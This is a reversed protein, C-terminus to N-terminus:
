EEHKPADNKRANTPELARQAVFQDELGLRISWLENLAAEVGLIQAFIHPASRRQHEVRILIQEIHAVADTREGATVIAMLEFASVQHAAFRQVIGEALRLRATRRQQVQAPTLSFDPQSRAVDSLDLWRQYVAAAASEPTMSPTESVRSPTEAACHEYVVGLLTSLDDIRTSYQERALLHLLRDVVARRASAAWLDSSPSPLSTLTLSEILESVNATPSTIWPLVELVGNLVGPSNRNSLVVTRAARRVDAPTGRMAEEALVEADVWAITGRGLEELLAIRVPGNRGANLYKRTWDARRDIETSTHASAPSSAASTPEGIHDMEHLAETENGMWLWGAAANLRAFSTALTLQDETSTAQARDADVSLRLFVWRQLTQGVEAPELSWAQAYRDRLALRDVQPADIQLVMTLDVGEASSLSALSATVARIDSQSMDERSFWILLRARAPDGDRWHLREVLREISRLVAADDHPEPAKTLLTEMAHLVLQDASVAGQTTPRLLQAADVIADWCDVYTQQPLRISAGALLSPIWALTAISGSEFSRRDRPPDVIGSGQSATDIWAREIPTLGPERSLRALMGGSWIAPAIDADTFTNETITRLPAGLLKVYDVREKSGPALRFFMEILEHQASVRVDEGVLTWGLSITSAAQTANELRMADTGDLTKTGLLRIARLVREANGQTTSPSPIEATTNTPTTPDPTDPTTNPSAPVTGQPEPAANTQQQTQNSRNASFWGLGSGVILVGVIVVSAVILSGIGIALGVIKRDDTEVKVGATIDFRAQPHRQTMPLPTTISSETSDAPSAYQALASAVDDANLGRSHAIALLHAMAERGWGGHLALVRPIDAWLPSLPVHAVPTSSASDPQYTPHDHHAGVGLDSVSAPVTSTARNTATDIPALWEQRLLEHTKPDLLQAAASHLALVAEGAAPTDRHPHNAMQMLRMRLARQVDEETCM